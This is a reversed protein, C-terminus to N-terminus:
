VIIKANKIDRTRHCSPCLQIWDSRERKHKGSINAWEYRKPKEMIKGDWNKRKRPYICTPEECKNAKSFHRRVWDHKPGYGAKEGKWFWHKNGTPTRKHGFMKLRQKQRSEKSLLGSFNGRGEAWQKKVGESIKKRHADSKKLKRKDM